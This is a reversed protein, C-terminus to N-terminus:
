LMTCSVTGERRNLSNRHTAVANGSDRLQTDFCVDSQSCQLTVRGRTPRKSPHFMFFIPPDLARILDLDVNKVIWFSDLGLFERFRMHKPM